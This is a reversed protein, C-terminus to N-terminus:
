LSLQLFLISQLFINICQQAMAKLLINLAAVWTRVARGVHIKLWEFGEESVVTEDVSEAELATGDDYEEMVCLDISSLKIYVSKSSEGPMVIPSKLEIVSMGAANMNNEDIYGTGHRYWGIKDMGSSSDVEADNGLVGGLMSYRRGNEEDITIYEDDVVYVTYNVGTTGDLYISLATIQVTASTGDLDVASNKLMFVFGYASSLEEGTSIKDDLYISSANLVVDHCYGSTDIHSDLHRHSHPLITHSLCSALLLPLLRLFSSPPPLM